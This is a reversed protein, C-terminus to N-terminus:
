FLEALEEPTMPTAKSQSAEVLTNVMDVIPFNKWEPGPTFNFHTTKQDPFDHNLKEIVLFKILEMRLQSDLVQAKEEDTIEKGLMLKAHIELDEFM